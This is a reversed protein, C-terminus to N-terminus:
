AIDRREISTGSPLSPAVFEGGDVHTDPHLVGWGQGGAVGLAGADTFRLHTAAPPLTTQALAYMSAGATSRADLM